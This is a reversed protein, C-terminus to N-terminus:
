QNNLFHQCDECDSGCNYPCYSGDYENIDDYDYDDCTNCFNYEVEVEKPILMKKGCNNCFTEITEM